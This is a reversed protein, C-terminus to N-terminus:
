KFAVSSPYGPHTRGYGSGLRRNNWWVLFRRIVVTCMDATTSRVERLRTKTNTSRRPCRPLPLRRLAMQVRIALQERRHLPISFRRSTKNGTLLTLSTAFVIVSFQLTAHPFRCCTSCIEYKFQISTLVQRVQILAGLSLYYLRQSPVDIFDESILPKKQLPKPPETSM